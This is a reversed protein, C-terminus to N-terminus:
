KLLKRIGLDHFQTHKHTQKNTLSLTFTGESKKRYRTEYITFVKRLGFYKVFVDFTKQRKVQSVKVKIIIM